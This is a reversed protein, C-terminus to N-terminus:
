MVNCNVYRVMIGASVCSRSTPMSAVSYEVSTAINSHKFLWVSKKTGFVGTYAMEEMDVLDGCMCVFAPKNAMNNIYTVAKESYEMETDWDRNCNRMGLQPDAGIVFTYAGSSEASQHKTQPLSAHRVTRDVLVKEEKRQRKGDPEIFSAM